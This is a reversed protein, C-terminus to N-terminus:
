QKCIVKKTGVLNPFTPVFRAVRRKREVGGDGAKWREDDVVVM